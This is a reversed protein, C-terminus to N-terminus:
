KLSNESMIIQEEKEKMKTFIILEALDRFAGNGGRNDVIVDTIQKIQIVADSPCASLGVMKIIDLDNTDDGIYAINEYALDRKAAIFNLVESKNKVGMFLETIGLKEARTRVSGSIEGTIIGTEVGAINRLREVGMGDRISFRKLEEGRESYYVGTDTLVGDSDTLLLKIKSAKCIILPNLSKM